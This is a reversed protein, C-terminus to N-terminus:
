LTTPRSHISCEVRLNETKQEVSQAVQGGPSRRADPSRPPRLEYRDRGTRAVVGARARARRLYRKSPITPWPVSSSEVEELASVRTEVFDIM